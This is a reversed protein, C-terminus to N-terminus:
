GDFEMSFKRVSTRVTASYLGWLVRADNMASATTDLNHLANAKLTTSSPYRTVIGRKNTLDTQKFNYIQTILGFFCFREVLTTFVRRAGLCSDHFKVSPAM